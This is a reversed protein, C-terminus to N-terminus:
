PQNSKRMNPNILDDAEWQIKEGNKGQGDSKEGVDEELHHIEIDPGWIGSKRKSSNLFKGPRLRMHRADVM